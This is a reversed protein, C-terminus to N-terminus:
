RRTLTHLTVGDGPASDLTFMHRAAALFDRTGARDPDAIRLEGGLALLRPFLRLATEVNARTYLVDSALVLDWPGREVLVDGHEGWDVVAVEGLVDNLAMTHAAFAVADGAGDTALVPVGARAAVASPLGLGCGLELVRRGPRPPEEALTRALAIGSPWPRAWYPIPRQAAAEEDRLAEWDVPYAVYLEGGPLEFRRVTVDLLAAPLADPAVGRLEALREALSARLASVGRDHDPGAAV